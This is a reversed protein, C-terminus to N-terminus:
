FTFVPAQRFEPLVPLTADFLARPSVGGAVRDYRVAKGSRRTATGFKADVAVLSGGPALQDLLRDLNTEVAGNVLVVDYPANPLHGAPMPGTVVEVNGMPALARRAAETFGVDSDLTTVSAVLRALVAAAYGTAGAVVLVRAGAEYRSNQILKALVMPVPLVRGEGGGTAPLTLPADSYALSALRDPLFPERPTDLLADLVRQDTVDFTRVQNDVMVRRLAYSAREAAKDQVM